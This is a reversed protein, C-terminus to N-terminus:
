PERMEWLFTGHDYAGTSQVVFSVGPTRTIPRLTGAFNEDQPYLKILSDATVATSLITAEGDVLTATGSSSFSHADLETEVSAMLSEVTRYVAMFVRDLFSSPVVNPDLHKYRRYSIAM